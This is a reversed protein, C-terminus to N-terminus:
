ITPTAYVRHRGRFYAVCLLNVGLIFAVAALFIFGAFLHIGPYAQEAQEAASYYISPAELRMKAVLVWSTAPSHYRILGYIAAIPLWPLLWLARKLARSM